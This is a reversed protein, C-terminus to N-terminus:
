VSESRSINAFGASCSRSVVVWVAVDLMVGSSRWIQRSTWAPRVELSRPVM